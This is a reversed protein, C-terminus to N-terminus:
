DSYLALKRRAAAIGERTKTLKRLLEREESEAIELDREASLRGATRAKNVTFSEKLKEEIADLIARTFTPAAADSFASDGKRIPVGLSRPKFAWSGDDSVRFDAGFVRFTKGRYTVVGMGDSGSGDHVYARGGEQWVVVVKGTVKGSLDVVETDDSKRM